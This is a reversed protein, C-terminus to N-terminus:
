ENRVCKRVIEKPAGEGRTPFSGAETCSTLGGSLAVSGEALSMRLGGLSGETAVGAGGGGLDLGTALQAL